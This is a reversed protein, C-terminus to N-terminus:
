QGVRDAEEIVPRLDADLFGEARAPTLDLTLLFGEPQSVAGAQPWPDDQPPLNRNADAALLVHVLRIQDSHLCRGTKEDWLELPTACGMSPGFPSWPNQSPRLVEERTRPGPIGHLGPETVNGHLLIEGRGAVGALWAEMLQLNLAPVPPLISRYLEESWSGGAGPIRGHFWEEAKTEIPLETLIMPSPGIFVNGTTLALGRITMYGSPTNGNSFTGPLNTQARALQRIIVLQGDADRVFRGDRRRGVIFGPYDRNGGQISFLVPFDPVPAPHRLVQLLTPSTAPWPPLPLQDAAMLVARIHPSTSLDAQQGLARSLASRLGSSSQLDGPSAGAQLIVAAMAVIRPPLSVSTELVHRRLEMALPDTTALPKYLTHIAELLDRQTRPTLSGIAPLARTIGERLDVGQYNVLGAGWVAGEIPTTVVTTRRDQPSLALTTLADVAAPILRQAIKERLALRESTLAFTSQLDQTRLPFHAPIVPRSDVSPAAAIGGNLGPSMILCGLTLIVPLSKWDCMRDLLSM